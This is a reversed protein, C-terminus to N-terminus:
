KEPQEPILTLDGFNRPDVTQGGMTVFYGEWGMRWYGDSENFMVSFGFTPNKEPAIGLVSWPILCEYFTKGDATYSGNIRRTKLVADKVPGAPLQSTARQLYLEPNATSLTFLQWNTFDPNRHDANIGIQISDTRWADLGHQSADHLDDTVEAFFWLGKRNWAFRFEPLFDSRGKWAQALGLNRKNGGLQRFLPIGEWDSDEADAVLDERYPVGRLALPRRSHFVDHFGDASKVEAAIRFGETWWRVTYARLDPNAPDFPVAPDTSYPTFEYTREGGPALEVAATEPQFRWPAFLGSEKEGGSGFTRFNFAEVGLFGPTLTGRFPKGSNNRLTITVVASKMGTAHGAIEAAIPQQSLPREEPLVIRPREQTVERQAVEIEKGFVFLPAGGVALTLKKGNGAPNGFCDFARMPQPGTLTVRHFDNLAWLVLVSKGDTSWDTIWLHDTEATRRGRYVPHELMQTLAAYAVLSPRRTFKDASFAHNRLGDFQNVFAFGAMLQNLYNRQLYVAQTLEEVEVMTGFPNTLTLEGAPREALTFYADENVGIRKDAGFLDRIAAINEAHGFEPRSPSRYGHIAVVDVAETGGVLALKRLFDLNCHTVGTGMLKVDLGYRDLHRKTGSLLVALPIMNEPLRMMSEPENYIEQTVVMDPYKRKLEATKQALERAGAELRQPTPSRLDIYGNQLLGNFLLGNRRAREPYNRKEIEEFRWFPQRVAKVGIRAALEWDYMLNATYPSNRDFVGPTVARPPIVAFRQVLRATEGEANVNLTLRYIGNKWLRAAPIRLSGPYPDHGEPFVFGGQETMLRKGDYDELVAEYEATKGPLTWTRAEFHLEADTGRDFVNSKGPPVTWRVAVPAPYDWTLNGASFKWPVRKAGDFLDSQAPGDGTVTFRHIRFREMKSELGGVIEFYFGIEKPQFREPVAAEGTRRFERGDASIFSALKGERLEAKLFLRKRSADWRLQESKAGPGQLVCLVNRPAPAASPNVVGCRYVTRGAADGAYLGFVANQPFFGPTGSEPFEFEAEMTFDGGNWPQTVRQRNPWLQDNARYFDFSMEAGAALPLLGGLLVAANFFLNKM